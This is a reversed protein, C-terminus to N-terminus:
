NDKKLVIKFTLPKNEVKFPKIEAKGRTVRAYRTPRDVGEIITINGSIDMERQAQEKTLDEYKV